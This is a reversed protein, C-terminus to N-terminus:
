CAEQSRVCRVPGSLLRWLLRWGPVRGGAHDYRREGASTATRQDEPRRRM